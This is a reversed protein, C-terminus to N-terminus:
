EAMLEFGELEVHSARLAVLVSVASRSSSVPLTFRCDLQIDGFEGESSTKSGSECPVAKDGVVVSLESSSDDHGGSLSVRFRLKRDTAAPDLACLIAYQSGPLAERQCASSAQSPISSVVGALLVLTPALRSM